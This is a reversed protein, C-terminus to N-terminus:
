VIFFLALHGQIAWRLKKFTEDIPIQEFSALLRTMDPGLAM